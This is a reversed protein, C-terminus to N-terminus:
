CCQGFNYKQFGGFKTIDKTLTMKYATNNV